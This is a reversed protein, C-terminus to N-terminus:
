GGSADRGIATNAASWCALQFRCDDLAVHDVQGPLKAVNSSSIGATSMFSRLDRVTNYSWPVSEGVQDALGEINVIDFQPGRAWIEYNNPNADICRAVRKLFSRTLAFLEDVDDGENDRLLARAERSQDMWWLITDMNITRQLHLKKTTQPNVPLSVSYESIIKDPDASEAAAFAMQLIVSNPGTDLSEIDVMILLTSDVTLKNM